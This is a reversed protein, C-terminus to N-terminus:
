FFISTVKYIDTEVLRILDIQVVDSDTSFTFLQGIREVKPTGTLNRDSM